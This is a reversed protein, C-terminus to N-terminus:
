RNRRRASKGRRPQQAKRAGGAPQPGKGVGGAKKTAKRVPQAPRTPGAAESPSGGTGQPSVPPQSPGRPGQNRRLELYGLMLVCLVGFGLVAYFPQYNKGGDETRFLSLFDAILTPVTLLGAFVALILVIVLNVRGPETSGEAKLAVKVFNFIEPPFESFIRGLLRSREEETTM